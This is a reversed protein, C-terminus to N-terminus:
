RAKCHGAGGVTSEEMAAAFSKNVPLTVIVPKVHVLFLNFFRLVTIIFVPLPLLKTLLITLPTFVLNQFILSPTCDGLFTVPLNFRGTEKEFIM